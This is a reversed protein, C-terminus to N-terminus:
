TGQEEEDTLKTELNICEGNALTFSDGFTCVLNHCNAFTPSSKKIYEILDTKVLDTTKFKPKMKGAKLGSLVSEAGNELVKSAFSYEKNLLNILCEVNDRAQEETVQPGRAQQEQWTNHTRIINKCKDTM